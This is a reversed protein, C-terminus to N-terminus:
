CVRREREEKDDNGAPQWIRAIETADRTEAFLLEEFDIAEGVLVPSPSTFVIVDVVPLAASVPSPSTTFQVRFSRYSLNTLHKTLLFSIFEGGLYSM